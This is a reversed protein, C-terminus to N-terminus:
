AIIGIGLQERFGTHGADKAQEIPEGRMSGSTDFIMMANNKVAARFIDIDEASAAGAHLIIFVLLLKLSIKM